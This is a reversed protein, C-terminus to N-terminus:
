APMYTAWKVALSIREVFIQSTGTKSPPVQSEGVGGGLATYRRRSHAIQTSARTKKVVIEIDERGFAV